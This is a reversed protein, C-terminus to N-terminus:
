WFEFGQINRAKIMVHGFAPTAIVRFQAGNIDLAEAFAMVEALPVGM